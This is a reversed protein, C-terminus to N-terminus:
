PTSCVSLRRSPRAQAMLAVCAAILLCAIGGRKLRRSEKELKELRSLIATMEPSTDPM